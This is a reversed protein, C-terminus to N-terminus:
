GFFRYDSLGGIVECRKERNCRKREHWGLVKNLRLLLLLVDDGESEVVLQHLLDRRDNLESLVM